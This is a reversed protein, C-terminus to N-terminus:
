AAVVIRLWSLLDEHAQRWDPELMMMYPMGPLIRAECGYYRATARFEDPPM